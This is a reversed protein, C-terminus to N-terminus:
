FPSDTSYLIRIIFADKKKENERLYDITKQQSQRERTTAEILSKKDNNNLYLIFAFFMLFAGNQLQRDSLKVYKFFFSSGRDLDTKVSSEKHEM